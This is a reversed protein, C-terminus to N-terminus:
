SFTLGVGRLILTGVPTDSLFKAHISVCFGGEKLTRRANMVERHEGGRLSSAKDILLAQSQRVHIKDIVVSENTFANVVARELTNSDVAPVPIHFWNETNAPQKIVTGEDGQHVVSSDAVTNEVIAAIGHVWISM